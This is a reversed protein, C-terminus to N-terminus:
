YWPTLGQHWLGIRKNLREIAARNQEQWHRIRESRLKVDLAEELIHSLNLQLERAEDLLDRRVSVNVAKKISAKIRAKDLMLLEVNAIRM